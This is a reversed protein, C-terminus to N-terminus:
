GVTPQCRATHTPACRQPKVAPLVECDLGGGVTHDNGSGFPSRKHVRFRPDLGGDALLPAPHEEAYERMGDRELMGDFHRQLEGAMAPSGPEAASAEPSAPLALALALALVLALSRLAM